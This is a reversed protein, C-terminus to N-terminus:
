MEEIVQESKTQLSFTVNRNSIILFTVESSHGPLMYYLLSFAIYKEGIVM